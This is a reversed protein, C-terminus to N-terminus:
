FSRQDFGEREGRQQLISTVAWSWRSKLTTPPSTTSTRCGARCPTGACWVSIPVTLEARRRLLEKEKSLSICLYGTGGERLTECPINQSEVSLSERLVNCKISSLSLPIQVRTRQLSAVVIDQMSGETRLTVFDGFTPGRSNNKM